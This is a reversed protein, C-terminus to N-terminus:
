GSLRVFNHVSKEPVWGKLGRGWGKGGGGWMVLVEEAMRTSTNNKEGKLISKRKTRKRKPGMIQSSKM